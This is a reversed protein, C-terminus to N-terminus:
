QLDPTRWSIASPSYPHRGPCRRPARARLCPTPCPSPRVAGCWSVITLRIMQYLNLSIILILYLTIIAIYDDDDNGRPCEIDAIKTNLSMIQAQLEAQLQGADKFSKEIEEDIEYIDQVLQNHLSAEAKISELQQIYTKLLTFNYEDSTITESNQRQLKVLTMNKLELEAPSLLSRHAPTIEPEPPLEGLTVRAQTVATEILHIKRVIDSKSAAGELIYQISENRDIGHLHAKQLWLFTWEAMIPM